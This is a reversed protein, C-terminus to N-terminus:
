FDAMQAWAISYAMLASKPSTTPPFHQMGSREREALQASQGMATGPQWDFANFTPTRRSCPAGRQRDQRRARKVAPHACGTVTNALPGDDANPGKRAV